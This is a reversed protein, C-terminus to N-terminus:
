TWTKLRPVIEMGGKRMEENFSMSIEFTEKQYVNKNVKFYVRQVYM